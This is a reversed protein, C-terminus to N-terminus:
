EMEVLTVDGGAVSYGYVAGTNRLEYVVGDSIKIGRTAGTNTVASTGAIWIDAGTNNQLLGCKRNLNQAAIIAATAASLTTRSAAGIVSGDNISIGGANVSVLTGSRYRADTFARLTMSKNAQAAWYFFAKNVPFDLEFSTNLGLKIPVMHNEKSNLLMYVEVSSDTASEVYISKFPSSFELANNRERATTLTPLDIALVGPPRSARQFAVLADDKRFAQDVIAVVDDRTFSEQSM